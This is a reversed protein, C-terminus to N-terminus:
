HRADPQEMPAVGAVSLRSDIQQVGVIASVAHVVEDIEEEAVDGSLVVAGDSVEVTVTGPHELVHGLKARIRERLRDDDVPEDVMRRRTRAVTGQVRDATHKSSTRAFEEVDHAAAAGQDLTQSRRRRGAVPDFYYMAAAGAAFAVALRVVANM